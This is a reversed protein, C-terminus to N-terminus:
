EMFAWFNFQLSRGKGYQVVWDVPWNKNTKEDFTYSLVEINEAPGRAYTYLEIDPTLWKSPFGDNIPHNKLVNVLLDVRPGHSTDKGEGVPIKVMKGNKIEIAVGQNAKRWGLGIMKNYEMWEPFSNNASHFVYMGGGNKMYNEFNRQVKQPWSNGNGLSNVNQVVVDYKSFEPNWNNYNPSDNTPATSVDVECFGSNVLLTNLIETTYRWDHNSYGDVILIKIKESKAFLVITLLLFTLMLMSKKM